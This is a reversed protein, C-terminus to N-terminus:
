ILDYSLRVGPETWIAAHVLHITPVRLKGWKSALSTWGVERSPPLQRLLARSSECFSVFRQTWDSRRLKLSAGGAVGFESYNRHSSKIAALVVAQRVGTVQTAYIKSHSPLCM